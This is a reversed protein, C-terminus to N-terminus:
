KDDLEDEIRPLIDREHLRKDARYALYLMGAGASRLLLSWYWTIMPNDADLDHVLLVFGVVALLRMGLVRLRAEITTPRQKTMTMRKM